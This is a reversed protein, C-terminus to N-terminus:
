AVRQNEHRRKSIDMRSISNEPKYKDLLKKTVGHKYNNIRLDKLRSEKRQNISSEIKNTKM